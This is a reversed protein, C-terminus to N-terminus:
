GVGARDGQGPPVAKCLMKYTSTCAFMSEAAQLSMKLMLDHVDIPKVGLAKLADINSPRHSGAHGTIVTYIPNVAEGEEMGEADDRATAELLNLEVNWGEQQLAM